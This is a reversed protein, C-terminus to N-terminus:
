PGITSPHQRFIQLHGVLDALSVSATYKTLWAGRLTVLASPIIPGFEAYSKTIQRGRPNAIAILTQM